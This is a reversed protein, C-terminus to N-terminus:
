LSDFAQLTKIKYEEGTKIPFFSGTVEKFDRLQQIKFKGTNQNIFKVAYYIANQDIWWNPRHYSWLYFHANKLISAFQLGATSNAIYMCGAWYKRWPVMGWPGRTDFLGIDYGNIFDYFVQLPKHIYADADMVLIDDNLLKIIESARIFRVSAFYAKDNIKTREISVSTGINKHVEKNIYDITENYESDVIHFHINAPCDANQKISSIIKENFASYYRKDCTVLITPNNTNIRKDHILKIPSLKHEFSVTALAENSYPKCTRAGIDWGYLDFNDNEILTSFVNLSQNSQGECFLEIGHYYDTYSTSLNYREVKELLQSKLSYYRKNLYFVDLFGTWSKSDFLIGRNIISFLYNNWATDGNFHELHKFLHDDTNDSFETVSLQRSLPVLTTASKWTEYYSKNM